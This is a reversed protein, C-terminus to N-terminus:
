IDYELQHRSESFGLLQKEKKRPLREHLIPSISKGLAKMVEEFNDNSVM